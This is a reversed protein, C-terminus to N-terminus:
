GGSRAPGAGKLFHGILRKAEPSDWDAAGELRGVENGDRDILLSTPLGRPKLARLAVASPDLYIPLSGLGQKHFFAEVVPRGGRDLSLAVVQFGPGGLDAQLRDLAPMEKVCPVCWTAWLNLVVVRGRFDALSVRRGAADVVDLVPAPRPPDIPTFDASAGSFAPPGAVATGAMMVLAFGLRAAARRIRMTVGETM